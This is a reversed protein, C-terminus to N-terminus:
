ICDIDILIVLNNISLPSITHAIEGMKIRVRYRVYIKCKIGFSPDVCERTHPAQTKNATVQTTHITFYYNSFASLVRFVALYNM